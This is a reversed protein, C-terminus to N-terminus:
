SAQMAMKTEMALRVHANAPPPCTSFQLIRQLANEGSAPACTRRWPFWSPPRSPMCHNTDVYKKDPWVHFISNAIVKEVFLKVFKIANNFEAQTISGSADILFTIDLGNPANLDIRRGRSDYYEDTTNMKGLIEGFKNVL